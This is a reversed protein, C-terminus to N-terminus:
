SFEYVQKGVIMGVMAEHVQKAPPVQMVVPEVEAQIWRVFKREIGIVVLKKQM